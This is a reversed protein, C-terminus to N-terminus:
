SKKFGRIISLVDRVTRLSPFQLLSKLITLVADRKRDVRLYAYSLMMRVAHRKANYGRRIAPPAGVLDRQLSEVSYIFDEAAKVPNKRLASGAYIKQTAM